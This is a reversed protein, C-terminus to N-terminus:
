SNKDSIIKCFENVIEATIGWIIEEGSPYVLVRHKGKTWPLSYRDPLGLKKVPLHEIKEGHENISFPHAHIQVFFEEPQNNKFFSVPVSFVKEVENIDVQLEEVSNIKLSAVFPEVTLGMPAVLTGMKGLLEIKDKEIGLEEITERIATDKFNNDKVKDFEGGPFSVEGGQRINGARKEFLFHHEDNVTIIPVLVASNFFRDKGIVEQPESFIKRISKLDM